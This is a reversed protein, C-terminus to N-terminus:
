NKSAAPPPSPLFCIPPFLRRNVNPMSDLPHIRFRCTASRGTHRRTTRWEEFGGGADFFPSLHLPWAPPLNEFLSHEMHDGAPELRRSRGMGVIGRMDLMEKPIPCFGCTRIFFAQCHIRSKM